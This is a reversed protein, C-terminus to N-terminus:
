LSYKEQYQNLYNRYRDDKIERLSNVYEHTDFVSVNLEILAVALNSCHGAVREYNMLLDNFVFGLELGCEGKQVRQIHRTKLENCLIEIMEKLPEVKYSSDVDGKVFAHFSMDVIEKVAEQLLMLESKAEDSFQMKKENMELALEAINVAHDSMREFDSITHLILSVQSSDEASMEAGTLKILYTGLHDEYKDIAEEKTKVKDYKDKEFNSLLNMARFVNKRTKDAMAFLVMRSQEIAIPPYKLFREELRDINALDDEDDAADPIIRCILSEIGKIFPCLSLVTLIRFITNVLAVSVPTMVHNLFSFNVFANVGYFIIGWIVAGLLDILLYIVATRKGNTNAGIASLLVPVAAGIGIGLIIPYATAFSIAGTVSLAQLIGISASASQLVATIAMGLLIGLFPNSFSSIASKFTESDKLPSVASSMSTMGYMLVSFGLLIEGVNKQTRGKCFMRLIIGIVAVVATLTATSLLSAIGSGTGMYSLCLVWGTVSTGILAGMIIGIAQYVKMMGSNVFGVVMVTTASSSQIVATVFTGLLIGKLPTNSLKYLIVELKNGAVKKLADGMITMGFLFLAVGGLLSFVNSIGM